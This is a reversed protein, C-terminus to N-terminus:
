RHKKPAKNAKGACSRTCYKKKEYKNVVFEKGCFQCIRTENDVGSLYRSKTKCKNSCFRVGVMNKSYFIKGCTECTYEIPERNGFIKKGHQKHWEIGEPTSHWSRAANMAKNIYVRMKALREEDAVREQMHHSLHKGREVLELNEINNNSTDEDIHHIHYGKPIDGNYHKYVVRHLRNPGRSFYREGKYKHYVKGMFEQCPVGDIYFTDSVREMYFLADWSAVWCFYM